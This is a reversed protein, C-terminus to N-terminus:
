IYKNFFHKYYHSYFYSYAVLHKNFTNMEDESESEEINEVEMQIDHDKVETKGLEDTEMDICVKSQESEERKEGGVVEWKYLTNLNIPENSSKEKFKVSTNKQAKLAFENIFKLRMEAVQEVNINLSNENLINRYRNQIKNLDVSKKIKNQRFEALSMELKDILNLNDISDKIESTSQKNAKKPPPPELESLSHKQSSFYRKSNKYQEYEFLSNDLEEKSIVVKEITFDDINDSKKIENRTLIIDNL